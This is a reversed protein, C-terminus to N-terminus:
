RKRKRTATRRTATGRKAAPAARRRPRPAERSHVALWVTPQAPDTWQVRHRRHAPILLYGGPVMVCVEDEGEFRLGASGRLLVVFEDTDQDYWEGAPTAHAESVIREIRLVGTQLLVDVHEEPLRAPIGAFLNDM